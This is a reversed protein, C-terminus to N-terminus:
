AALTQDSVIRSAPADRLYAPVLNLDRYRQQLEPELFVFDGIVHRCHPTGCRCHMYFTTNSLTTSYDWCIEEGRQISRIAVLFVGEPTFRLGANPNCSHNVLDDLGGSPGMYHDLDIQVFRDGAGKRNSHIESAHYRPGIFEMLAADVPFAQTAFVAKGLNSEAIRFPNAKRKDVDRILFNRVPIGFSRLPNISSLGIMLWVSAHCILEVIIYPLDAGHTDSASIIVMLTSFDALTWLGWGPSLERRHDQSASIWTPLFSVPVAAVILVHAWFSSQFGFWIILSAAAIAICLLEADSPRQWASQRWIALTIFLCSAAAVFFVINQAMGQNLAQYTLAEVTTVASWILWSSRNPKVLQQRIGLWYLGYGLVNLVMAAILWFEVGVM